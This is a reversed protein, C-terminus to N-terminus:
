FPAHENNQDNNIEKELRQIERNIYWVSKKLDEIEKEIKSEIKGDTYHSPHNVDDNKCKSCEGKECYNEKSESKITLIKPKLDNFEIINTFYQLMENYEGYTIDNSSNIRYCTEEKYRQLSKGDDYFSDYIDQEKLISMLLKADEKTECHIVDGIEFIYRRGEGKNIRM